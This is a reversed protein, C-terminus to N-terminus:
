PDGGGCSGATIAARLHDVIERSRGTGIDPSTRLHVDFIATKYKFWSEDVHHQLAWEAALSRRISISMKLLEQLDAVCESDSSHSLIHYM